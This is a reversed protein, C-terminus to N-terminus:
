ETNKKERRVKEYFKRMKSERLKRMQNARVTKKCWVGELKEINLQQERGGSEREVQKNDKRVISQCKVKSKDSLMRGYKRM